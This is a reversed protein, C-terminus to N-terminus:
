GTRDLRMVRTGGRADDLTKEGDAPWADDLRRGRGHRRNPRLHRCRDLGARARRRSRDHGATGYDASKLRREAGALWGPRDERGLCLGAGHLGRRREARLRGLRDQRLPRCRGSHLRVRATGERLRPIERELGAAAALGQGFGDLLLHLSEEVGVEGVDANVDTMFRGRDAGQGEGVAGVEVKRRALVIGLRGVALLEETVLQGV